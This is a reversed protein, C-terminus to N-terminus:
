LELIKDKENIKHRYVRYGLWGLIKTFDNNWLVAM